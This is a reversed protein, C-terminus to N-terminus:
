GPTLGLEVGAQQKQLPGLQSTLLSNVIGVKIILQQSSLNFIIKIVM